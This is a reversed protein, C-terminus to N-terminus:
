STSGLKGARDLAIDVMAKLRREDAYSAYIDDRRYIIAFAFGSSSASVQIGEREEARIDGRDIRRRMDKMIVDRGRGNVFVVYRLGPFRAEYERNLAALREDVGGDTATNLQAQEARSQASDVKKAGLRPHSGLISHLKERSSPSFPPTALQHLLLGVHQILVAYSTFPIDDPVTTTSSHLTVPLDATLGPNAPIRRKQQIAPVALAHIEPSPEFLMDLVSKITEEDATPLSSIPPLSLTTM